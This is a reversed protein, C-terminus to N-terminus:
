AGRLADELWARAFNWDREVTRLSSEVGTARLADSAEEATLGGFFRMEVVRSQRPYDVEFRDGNVLVVTFPRDDVVPTVTPM